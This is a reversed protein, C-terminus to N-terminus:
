RKLAGILIPQDRQANGYYTNYLSVSETPDGAQTGTMHAEIYSIDRKDVKGSSIVEQILRCQGEVSPFTIGDDKFGDSNTGSSIIEAYIRKSKSKRQIIIAVNCEARAYGNANADMCKCRGDPSNMQLNFFKAAVEPRDCLQMSLVVATDIMGKKMYTYAEHLANLSSACATDFAMCPGKIGFAQGIEEQLSGIENTYGFCRSAFIGTRDGKIDQPSMGSDIIAEYVCEKIIRLGADM